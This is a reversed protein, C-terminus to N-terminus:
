LPRALAAAADGARGSDWGCRAVGTAPVREARPALAGARRPEEGRARRGFSIVRRSAAVEVLRGEPRREAEGGGGRARTGSWGGASRAREAQGRARAGAPSTEARQRRPRRRASARSRDRTRERAGAGARGPRAPFAPTPPPPFPSPHFSLPPRPPTARPHSLLLVGECCACGGADGPGALGGPGRGRRGPGSGGKGASAWAPSSGRCRSRLTGITSTCESGPTRGSGRGWARLRQGSKGKAFAFSGRVRARGWRKRSATRCPPCPLPSGPRWRWWFRERKVVRVRGLRGLTRQRTPGIEESSFACDSKWWRVLSVRGRLVNFLLGPEVYWMVFFSPQVRHM